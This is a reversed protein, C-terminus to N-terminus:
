KQQMLSNIRKGKAEFNKQFGDHLKPVHVPKDPLSRMEERLRMMDLETERRMFREQKEQHEARLRRLCREQEQQTRLIQLRLASCCGPQHQKRREMNQFRESFHIRLKSLEESMEAALDLRLKELRSDMRLDFSSPSKM